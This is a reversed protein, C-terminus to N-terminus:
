GLSRDLAKLDLSVVVLNLKFFKSLLPHEAAKM